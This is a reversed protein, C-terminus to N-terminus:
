PKRHPIKPKMSNINAFDIGKFFSHAKLANFDNATGNRGAGLRMEPDKVLLNSILDKASSDIDDPFTYDIDIIKQFTM